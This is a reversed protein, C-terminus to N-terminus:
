PLKYERPLKVEGNKAEYDAAAKMLVTGLLKGVAWPFTVKVLEIVTPTNKAIVESSQLLEELALTV